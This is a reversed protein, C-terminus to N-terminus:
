MPSGRVRSGRWDNQHVPLARAPSFGVRSVSAHSDHKASRNKGWNHAHTFHSRLCPTIIVAPATPRHPSTRRPEVFAWGLPVRFYDNRYLGLRNMNKPRVPVPINNWASSSSSSSSIAHHMGTVSWISSLLSWLKLGRPRTLRSTQLLTPPCKTQSRHM